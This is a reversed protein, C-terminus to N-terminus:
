SETCIKNVIPGNISHPSYLFKIASIPTPPTLFYKPWKLYHDVSGVFVNPLFCVSRKAFGSNRWLPEALVRKAKPSSCSCQSKRSCSLSGSTSGQQLQQAASSPTSRWSSINPFWGYVSVARSGWVRHRDADRHLGNQINRACPGTLYRSRSHRPSTPFLVQRGGTDACKLLM